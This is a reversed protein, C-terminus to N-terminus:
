AEEGPTMRYSEILRWPGGALSTENTWVVAGPDSVDFTM